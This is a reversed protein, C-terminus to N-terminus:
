RPLYVNLAKPALNKTVSEDSAQLHFAAGRCTWLVIHQQLSRWFHHLAEQLLRWFVEGGAVPFIGGLAAPLIEQQM